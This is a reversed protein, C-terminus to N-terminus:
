IHHDSSNAHVIRMTEHLNEGRGLQRLISYMLRMHLERLSQLTELQVIRGSKQRKNKGVGNSSQNNTESNGGQGDGQGDRQNEDGQHDDQTEGHDENNISWRNHFFFYQCWFCPSRRDVIM